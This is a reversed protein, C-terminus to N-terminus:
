TFGDPCPPKVGRVVRAEADVLGARTLLVYVASFVPGTDGWRFYSISVDAFGADQVTRRADDENWVWLGLADRDPTVLGEVRSGITVVARGGPGLVRYMERLAKAPDPFCELSSVCAVASFRDDRWPLSGADGHVIQASGSAIRDALRQRALRVQIDSVDIGTVQRVQTAHEALFAGSGCAVELLEDDPRLDLLRAVVPYVSATAMPIVRSGVWGVPGRPTTWASGLAQRRRAAVGLAAGAAVGVLVTRRM